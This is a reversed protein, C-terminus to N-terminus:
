VHGWVKKRAIRSATAETVNFLQAIEGLKAGQERMHRISLVAEVTLLTMNNKAGRRAESIARKHEDTREVNQPVGTFLKSLRECVEPTHTRGFMPNREGRSRDSMKQRTEKSPNIGGRGGEHLNYGKGRVTTEYKAIWAVEKTFAAEETECIELVHFTFNSVGHKAMAAHLYRHHKHKPHESLWVHHGWRSSPNISKGIYRKGDLTNTICYVAPRMVVPKKRNIIHTSERDINLRSRIIGLAVEPDFDACSFVDMSFFKQLPWAHLSMHSKSIVCMGTIGGEDAFEGTEQSLRLVEPDVPVEIFDPGVLITMGLASALEHFLDKLYAGNFVSEDRVFADVLVHVGASEIIRGM